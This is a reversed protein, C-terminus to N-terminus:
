IGLTAKIADQCQSWGVNFIKEALSEATDEDTISITMGIYDHRWIPGTVYDFGLQDLLEKM